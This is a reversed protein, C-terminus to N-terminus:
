WILLLAQVESCAKASISQSSYPQFQRKCVVQSRKQEFRADLQERRVRRRRRGGGRGRKRKTQELLIGFCFCIKNRTILCVGVVMSQFNFRFGGQHRHLDSVELFFYFRSNHIIAM